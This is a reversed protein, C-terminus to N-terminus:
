IFVQQAGDKRGEEQLQRRYIQRDQIGNEFVAGKVDPSNIKVTAMDDVINM